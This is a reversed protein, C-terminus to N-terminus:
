RTFVVIVLVVALVFALIKWGNIPAGVDEMVPLEDAQDTPKDLRERYSIGTGPIGVNGTVKDGRLNVSAGRGGLSVSAGTKSLNLTVGKFLRIRRQFRLGM